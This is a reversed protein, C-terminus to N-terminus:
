PQSKVALISAFNFCQFWPAITEFGVHRLRQCHASMTEPILTNELAQRKQAIELESYGNARKFDHHLETLLAQVSENEFCIKESLLLAGSPLLAAYIDQLVQERESQPIFQLTWNLVVFSANSMPFGRVDAEHIEVRCCGGKTSEQEASILGRLRAVMASSNDVAHLTCDSHARQQMQLSAAGLSCGLDYLNSTPQCFRETLQGVMTIISGYGPVSRSIMDPFVNAVADNFSFEPIREQPAAYFKDRKM